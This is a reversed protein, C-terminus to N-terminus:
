YIQIFNVARTIFLCKTFKHGVTKCAPFNSNCMRWFLHIGPFHESTIGINWPLAESALCRFFDPRKYRCAVNPWGTSPCSILMMCLCAVKIVLHPHGYEAFSLIDKGEIVVGLWKQAGHTGLQSLMYAKGWESRSVPHFQISCMERWKSPKGITLLKQLLIAIVRRFLLGFTSISWALTM